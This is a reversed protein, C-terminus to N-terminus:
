PSVDRPVNKLAAFSDLFEQGGPLATIRGVQAQVAQVAQLLKEGEEQLSEMTKPSPRPAAQAREAIAEFEDCRAQISARAAKMSEKDKVGSLIEALKNLAATQDRFAARFTDTQGCGMIAVTGILGVLFVRLKGM